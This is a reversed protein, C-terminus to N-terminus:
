LGQVRSNCEHLETEHSQLGGKGAGNQPQFDIAVLIKALYMVIDECEYGVFGVVNEM